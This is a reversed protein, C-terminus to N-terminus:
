TNLTLIVRGIQYGSEYLSFRAQVGLLYEKYGCCSIKNNCACM